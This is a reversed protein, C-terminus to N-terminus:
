SVACSEFVIEIVQARLATLKTIGEKLQKKQVSQFDALTSCHRQEFKLLAIGAEGSGYGSNSSSAAECLAQVHFLCGQLVDDAFYLRRQLYDQAGGTCLRRVTNRWTM